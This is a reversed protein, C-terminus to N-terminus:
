GINVSGGGQLVGGCSIADGVRAAAAGDIMVTSSGAAITRPHPPCLPAAHMALPDGVRAVAMGDITVTTSGATVPTPPFAGHATGTHGVLISNGMIYDVRVINNIITITAIVM